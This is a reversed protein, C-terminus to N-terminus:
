INRKLESYNAGNTVITIVTDSLGEKRILDRDFTILKQGAKVADGQKVFTKIGKGNLNVTDIGIHILLEMGSDSVLGIAHGTPFVM